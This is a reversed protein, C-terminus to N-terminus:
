FHTIKIFDVFFHMSVFSFLLFRWKFVPPPRQIISSPLKASIQLLFTSFVNKVTHFGKLGLQETYEFIVAFSLQDVVDYRTHDNCNNRKRKGNGQRDGRPNRGLLSKVGSNDCANGNRKKATTVDVNRSRGGRKRGNNRTNDCSVTQRSEDNRGNKRSQHENDHTDTMEPRENLVDGHGNGRAKGCTNRHGDDDTLDLIEEAQGKRGTRVGHLCYLLDFRYCFRDTGGIEVRKQHAQDTHRDENEPRHEAFGSEAHEGLDNGLDGCGDDRHDHTDQDRVEGRKLDVGDAREIRIKGRAKRHGGQRRKFKFRDLRDQGAREGNGNERRDLGQEGAHHGVTHDTVSVVGVGLQDRLTHTVDRRTHKATDGRRSGNRASRCVDFVATARGNRTDNMGNNQKQKQKNEHRKCLHDGHRDNGRDEKHNRVVHTLPSVEDANAAERGLAINENQDHGKNQGNRKVKDNRNREADHQRRDEKDLTHRVNRAYASPLLVNCVVGLASFLVNGVTADNILDASRHKKGIGILEKVKCKLVARTSHDDAHALNGGDISGRHLIHLDKERCAPGLTNRENQRM